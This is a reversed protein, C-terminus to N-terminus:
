RHPLSQLNCYSRVATVAYSTASRSSAPPQSPAKPRRTAASIITHLARNTPTYAPDIVALHHREALV